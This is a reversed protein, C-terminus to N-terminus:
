IFRTLYRWDAIVRVLKQWECGDAVEYFQDVIICYSNSDGNKLSFSSGPLRRGVKWVWMFLFPQNWLITSGQLWSTIYHSGEVLQVPSGEKSGQIHNGRNGLPMRQTAAMWRLLIGEGELGNSNFCCSQWAKIGYIIVSLEYNYQM